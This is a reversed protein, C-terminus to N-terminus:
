LSSLNPKKSSKSAHPLKFNNYGNNAAILGM